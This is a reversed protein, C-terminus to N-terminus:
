CPMNSHIKIRQSSTQLFLVHFLGLLRVSPLDLECIKSLM